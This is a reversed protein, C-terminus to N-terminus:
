LKKIPFDSPQHIFKSNPDWMSGRKNKFLEHDQYELSLESNIKEPKPKSKGNLWYIILFTVAHVKWFDKM